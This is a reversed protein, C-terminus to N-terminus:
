ASKLRLGAKMLGDLLLDVHKELYVARQMLERARFPFDPRMKLLERLAPAAETHLGLQGAGAATILSDWFMGSNYGKAYTWTKEYDAHFYHYMFPVVSYVSPQIASLRIAAESLKMGEEWFGLMLYLFACGNYAHANFVNLSITKEMAAICRDKKRQVFFAMAEAYHAFQYDPDLEVALRALREAEELSVAKTGVDFIYTACYAHSLMSLVVPNVTDVKVAHELAEVASLLSHESFNEWYYEHRSIAEYIELDDARKTL